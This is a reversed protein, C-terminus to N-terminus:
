VLEVKRELSDVAQSHATLVKMLRDFIIMCRNYLIDNDEGTKFALKDEYDKLLKKKIKVRTKRDKEANQKIVVEVSEKISKQNKVERIENLRQIVVNKLSNELRFAETM